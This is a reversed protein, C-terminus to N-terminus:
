MDMYIYWFQQTAEQTCLYVWMNKGTQVSKTVAM